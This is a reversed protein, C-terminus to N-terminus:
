AEIPGGKKGPPSSELGKPREATLEGAEIPGGKKGPPSVLSM